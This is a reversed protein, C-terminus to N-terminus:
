PTRFGAKIANITTGNWSNGTDPDDEVIHPSDFVYTTTLSINASNETTGNSSIVQQLGAGSGSYAACAWSIVGHIDDWTVSTNDMTLLDLVNSSGEEVYDTLGSREELNVNEYHNASNGTTTWNVDDDGDPWLTEVRVPGLFDNNTNGTGDCVYFDDVRALSSCYIPNTNDGIGVRSTPSSLMTNVTSLSLVPCGNMRVEVTGNTQDSYAKMEFYHFVGIEINIPCAGLYTQNPGWVTFTGNTHVLEVNISGSSDRFALIPWSQPSSWVDKHDIRFAVGAIATNGSIQSEATLYPSYVSNDGPMLTWDSGWRNFADNYIRMRNEDGVGVYKDAIVGVPAPDTNDTDGYGEFGDCWKLAM